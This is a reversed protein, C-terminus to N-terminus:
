ATSCVNFDLLWSRGANRLRLCLSLSLSLSVSLSLCVSVSVSLCLSLSLCISVSLCFSLPLSLCVSLSLSLSLCVSLYDCLCLSLCLSVSVSLCLCLSVYLICFVSDKNVIFLMSIHRVVAYFISTFYYLLVFFSLFFPCYDVPNCKIICTNVYTNTISLMRWDWNMSFAKLCVSFESCFTASSNNKNVNFSLIRTIYINKKKLHVCYLIHWEAWLMLFIACFYCLSCSQFGLLANIIM